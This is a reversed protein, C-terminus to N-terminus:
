LDLGQGAIHAGLERHVHLSIHASLQWPPLRAPARVAGGDAGITSGRHNEQDGDPCPARCTAAEM